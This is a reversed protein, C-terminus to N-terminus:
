KYVHRLWRRIKILVNLPLVIANYFVEIVLTARQTYYVPKLLNSDPHVVGERIAREHMRTHPEIRIRNIMFVRRMKKGLAWKAKLLFWLMQLFSRISSGPPNLFFGYGININDIRKAVEVTRLIDKNTYNKNLLKLSKDSFADTSFPFAVCGADIALRAYDETFGKENSWCSWRIKLRRSLIGRCIDMSHNLPVNFVSDVFAFHRIGHELVLFEIEDLISEVSRIRLERGNLFPYPCYSCSMRCGRKTEIGIGTRHSVYKKLDFYEFAPKQLNEMDLPERKDTFQIDADRRFFVGKVREPRDMNDLLEPFSEEGEAFVGIDIEPRDRMIAEAFLSFGGGGAVLTTKPEVQRICKLLNVFDPYFYERGIYDVSDINRLSIGVVHPNFNKLTKEILGTDFKPAINPDLVQVDHKERISAAIRALAIPFLPPFHTSYSQILLVKM